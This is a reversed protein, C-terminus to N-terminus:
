NYDPVGHRGDAECLFVDGGRARESLLHATGSEVYAVYNWSIGQKYAQQICSSLTERKIWSENQANASEVAGLSLSAM